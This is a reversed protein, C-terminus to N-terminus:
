GDVWRWGPPYGNKLWTGAAQAWGLALGDVCVLVWGRSCGAPAPITEGRLYRVSTEWGEHAMATLDLRSADAVMAKPLGMALAQSPRFRRATITGLLWGSRLVRLGQLHPLEGHEWLIHGSREVVRGGPPLARLWADAAGFVQSSWAAVASAVERRLRVDHSASEPGPRTTIQDADGRAGGRRLLAAFHGEGAVQHPWLRRTALVTFDSHKDAFQAVQLENEEEAFTCTSYVLHGGRRLCLAAGALIEAQQRAYASVWEPRWSRAMEPLKRFMGEGSCPADVLVHDFFEPFARAIRDPTECLVVAQILGYREVNKLLARAREPHPDNVVLLGTGALRSGLQVSKGGPAACLDLVREGHRVPLWEAPLMASPEQIYYAGAFYYPHKAPRVVQEDYYLGHRAWPVPPGIGPLRAALEEAAMRQPLVYLGTARPAHYSALFAPFDPGLQREMRALFAEPLWAM